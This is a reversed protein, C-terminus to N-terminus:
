AILNLQHLEAKLRMSQEGSAGAARLARDVERVDVHENASLYIAFKTAHRLEGALRDVALAHRSSQRSVQGPTLLGTTDQSARLQELRHRDVEEAANIIHRVEDNSYGFATKLVNVLNSHQSM